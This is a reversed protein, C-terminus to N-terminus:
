RRRFVKQLQNVNEGALHSRSQKTHLKDLSNELLEQSRSWFVLHDEINNKATKKLVVKKQSNVWKEAYLRLAEFQHQQVFFRDPLGYISFCLHLRM